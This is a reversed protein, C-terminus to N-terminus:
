GLAESTSRVASWDRAPETDPEPELDSRPWDPDGAARGGGSASGPTHPTPPPPAANATDIGSSGEWDAGWVPPKPGCVM